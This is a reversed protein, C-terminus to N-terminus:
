ERFDAGTKEGMLRKIRGLAANVEETELTREPSRFTLSIAISKKGAPVRSGTPDSFVDFPEFAVLLPEGAGAIVRAIEAYPLSGAVVAALDRTVPPFKPPAAVKPVGAVHAELARPDFEAVFVGSRADLSRAQGPSLQALVGIVAGGALIDLSLPYVPHASADFSISGALQSLIGKADYLDTARPEGGRWDAARVPGTLVLAVRSHEAGDASFTRGIEFLRVAAEGANLNHRLARLLGPLLSPRLVSQDEGLPNKLKLFDDGGSSRAGEFSILTSTRAECFGSSVLRGRLVNALDYARDADGTPSPVGMVRSPVRELGIIRAVEEILDVERRLEIRFGPVAWVSEEERSAVLRLGVRVLADEIEPDPLAFGGLLARCRAHRLTIEHGSAPPTGASVLDPDATGGALELILATARASAGLTAEPDVGREFRYSSDSSLDLSRSTRRILAPDFFASEVLVDTTADIVGSDEGGMVGALALAHGQDAIVLHAPSLTYERGDLALFKEGDAARRVRIGGAVKAADFIHLPQGLELMVFNSIDVLNNIPRLGASELRSRLWDPSPGVKVGRIARLTYHPCDSFDEVAATTADVSTAVPAVGPFKVPLGTFAAIERAIGVHSLWDPRNPTIELDLITDPPYLNALPTGPIADGALILLGGTDEGLGLERASCMMGGSEVGRLKGVKIRFDGPLVAGPLALPVLDGVKYNKAGCVIQPPQGSGDDVRCVSLRDANPHQSSELIRAVVVQPLDVGRREVGEVKLGARTLLEDLEAVSGLYDIYDGLWNLSIKM